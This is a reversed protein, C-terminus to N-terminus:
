CMARSNEPRWSSAQNLKSSNKAAILRRLRDCEALARRIQDAEEEIRLLAGNLQFCRLEMNRTIM